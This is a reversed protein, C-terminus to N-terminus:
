SGHSKRIVEHAIALADRAQQAKGSFGNLFYSLEDQLTDNEKEMFNYTKGAITMQAKQNKSVREVSLDATINDVFHLRTVAIFNKGRKDRMGSAIVRYVRSQTLDLLLDIDHIMLDMVIDADGRCYCGNSREMKVKDFSNLENHARLYVSNFRELHGVHLLLKNEKAIRILYDAEVLTTTMPKEILVHTGNQLFHRAVKYHSADDTVVSVFDADVKKYDNTARCNLRHALDAAVASKHDCVTLEVDPMAAYKEAHYTGFTGVGIVAVKKM